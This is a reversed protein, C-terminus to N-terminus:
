WVFVERTKADYDLHGVLCSCDVAFRYGLPRAAAAFALDQTGVGEEKSAKTKFLPRPLRTDKFMSLRWLNFGMGTGNCEVIQGPKPEQPRFNMQPDTPDGWIQAVGGSGKTFYLGGICHFEPHAEMAALLKLVGDPPPLNDHEITLLYDWDKLEPHALIGEIQDSYAKGVEEGTTIIVPPLRAVPQNPPFMLNMWSLVVQAHIKDDAPILMVIRQRKWSGGKHLRSLTSQLDKNHFGPDYGALVPM